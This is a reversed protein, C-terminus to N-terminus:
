RSGTEGMVERLWAQGQEDVPAWCYTSVIRDLFAFRVGADWMRRALNWDGPEGLLRANIDYHFARLAGHYLAGQFGFQSHRPPFEGVVNPVIRGSAAERM